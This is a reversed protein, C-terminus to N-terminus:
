KPSEITMYVVRELFNNPFIRVLQFLLFGCLLISGNFFVSVHLFLNGKVTGDENLIVEPFFEHIVEVAKTANSSSHVANKM